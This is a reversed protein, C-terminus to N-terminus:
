ALGRNVYFTAGRPKLKIAQDFDQIARDPDREVRYVIGRNNYADAYDPKLAIVRDYDAIAMETRDAARYLSARLFYCYEDEPSILIAADCDQIALDFQDAGYYAFARLGLTLTRGRISLDDAELARTCLVIGSDYDEQQLAVSCANVDAASDALAHGAFVITVALATTLIQSMGWDM